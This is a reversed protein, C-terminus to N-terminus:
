RRFDPGLLNPYSYVVVSPPDSVTTAPLPQPRCPRGPRVRSREADRVRRGTTRTTRPTTARNSMRPWPASCSLHARRTHDAAMSLIVEGGLLPKNTPGKVYPGRYSSRTATTPPTGSASRTCASSWRHTALGTHHRPSTAPPAHHHAPHHDSPRRHPRLRPPRAPPTTAPPSTSSPSVKAACDGSPTSSASTSQADHDNIEDGPHYDFSDEVQEVENLGRRHQTAAPGRRSRPRPRCVPLGHRTDRPVVSTATGAGDAALFGTRRRTVATTQLTTAGHWGRSALSSITM